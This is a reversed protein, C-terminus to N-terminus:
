LVNQTMIEQTRISWLTPYSDVLPNPVFRGFTPVFRRLGPVFLGHTRFSQIGQLSITLGHKRELRFIWVIVEEM